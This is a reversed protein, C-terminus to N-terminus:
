KQVELDVAQYGGVIALNPETPALERLRDFKDVDSGSASADATEQVAVAARTEELGREWEAELPGAKLRRLEHTLLGRLQNGFAGVIVLATVPWALASVLKLTFDM